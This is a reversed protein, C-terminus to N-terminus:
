GREVGVTFLGFGQANTGAAEEALRQADRAQTLADRYEKAYRDAKESFLDGAARQLEMCTLVYSRLVVLRTVWHAPLTGLQAVDDAARSEREVTVLPALYADAYFNVLPM